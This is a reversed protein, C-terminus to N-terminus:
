SEQIPLPLLHFNKYGRIMRGQPGKLDHRKAAQHIRRMADPLLQTIQREPLQPWKM